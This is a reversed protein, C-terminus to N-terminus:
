NINILFGINKYYILYNTCPRRIPRKFKQGFMAKYLPHGELIPHGDIQPHLNILTDMGVLICFRFLITFSILLLPLTSCYPNSILCIASGQEM